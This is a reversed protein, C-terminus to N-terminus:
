SFYRKVAILIDVLVIEEYAFFHQPCFFLITAPAGSKPRMVHRQDPSQKFICGRFTKPLRTELDLHEVAYLAGFLLTEGILAASGDHEDSVASIPIRPEHPPQRLAWRVWPELHAVNEGGM